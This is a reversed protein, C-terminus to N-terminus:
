DDFALFGADHLSARHIIDRVSKTAEDVCRGRCDEPCTLFCLGAEILAYAMARWETPLDPFMRDAERETLQHKV